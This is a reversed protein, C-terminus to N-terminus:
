TDTDLHLVALDTLGAVSGHCYGRSLYLIVSHSLYFKFNFVCCCFVLIIQGPM